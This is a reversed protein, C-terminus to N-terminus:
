LIIHNKTLFIKSLHFVHCINLVNRITKAYFRKKFLMLEKTSISEKRPFLVSVYHTYDYFQDLVIILFINSLVAKCKVNSQIVNSLLCSYPDLSYSSLFMFFCAFIHFIFSYM